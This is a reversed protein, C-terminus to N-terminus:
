LSICKGWIIGSKKEKTFASVDSLIAINHVWTRVGAYKFVIGAWILLGKPRLRKKIWISMRISRKSTYM